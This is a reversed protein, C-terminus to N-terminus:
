RRLCLGGISHKTINNAWSYTHIFSQQLYPALELWKWVLDPLSIIFFFDQAVLIEEASHGPTTIVQHQLVICSNPDLYDLYHELHWFMPAGARKKTQFQSTGSKARCSFFRCFSYFTVNQRSSTPWFSGPYLCLCHLFPFLRRGLDFWSLWEWWFSPLTNKFM